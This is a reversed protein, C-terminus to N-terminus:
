NQEKTIIQENPRVRFPTVIFTDNNGKKWKKGKKEIKEERYIPASSRALLV